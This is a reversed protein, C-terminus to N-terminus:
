EVVVAGGSQQPEANRRHIRSHIAAALGYKRVTAESKAGLGPQGSEASPTQRIADRGAAASEASLTQPGRTASRLLQLLKGPMM